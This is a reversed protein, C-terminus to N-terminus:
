NKFSATAASSSADKIWLSSISSICSSTSLSSSLSSTCITWASSSFTMGFGSCVSSFFFTCDCIVAKKKLFFYFFKSHYNPFYRFNPINQELFTWHLPMKCRFYIATGSRKNRVRSYHNPFYVVLYVSIEQVNIEWFNRENGPRKNGLLLM